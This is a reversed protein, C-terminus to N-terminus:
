PLSEIEGKFREKLSQDIRAAKEVLGETEEPYGYLKISWHYKGKASRILEVSDTTERVLEKYENPNEPNVRREIEKPAM